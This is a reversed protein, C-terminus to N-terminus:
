TLLAVRQMAEPYRVPEHSSGQNQMELSESVAPNPANGTQTIRKRPEIDPRRNVDSGHLPEAM